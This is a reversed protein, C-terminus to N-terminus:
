SIGGRKEIRLWIFDICTRGGEKKLIQKLKTGRDLGLNELHIREKPV